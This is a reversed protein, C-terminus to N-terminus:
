NLYYGGQPMPKFKVKGTKSKHERPVTSSNSSKGFHDGGTFARSSSLLTGRMSHFYRTGVNGHNPNSTSAGKFGHIVEANHKKVTEHRNKHQQKRDSVDCKNQESGKGARKDLEETDSNSKSSGRDREKRKEQLRKEAERKSERIKDSPSVKYQEKEAETHEKQM